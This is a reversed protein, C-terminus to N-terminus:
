PTRITVQTPSSAPDAGDAPAGKGLDTGSSIGKSVLYSGSSVGLLAIATQNLTTDGGSLLRELYGGGIIVTFFLVQFRSTSGKGNAEQLMDCMKESHKFLLFLIFAAFGAFAAVAIWELTLKVTDDM